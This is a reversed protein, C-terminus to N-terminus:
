DSPAGLATRLDCLGARALRGLRHALRLWIWLLLALLILSLAAVAGDAARLRVVIEALHLRQILRTPLYIAVSVLFLAEVMRHIVLYSALLRTWLCARSVAGRQRALPQNLDAVGLLDALAWHGDSRIFPILSWLVALMAMLGAARAVPAASWSGVAVLVGGFLLQFCVGALDVRLRDRRRLAALATVDCYLVPVVWLVGVGIGGAPFGGRRLAAAHGCEHWIATALVWAAVTLWFHWGAAETSGDLPGATAAYRYLALGLTAQGLLQPWGALPTMRRALSDVWAAPILPVRLWITRQRRPRAGGAERALARHVEGAVGTDPAVSDCAAIQEGLPMPVLYTRGGYRMLWRRGPGAIVQWGAPLTRTM